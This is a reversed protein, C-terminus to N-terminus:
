RLIEEFLVDYQNKVVDIAYDRIAIERSNKQCKMLYDEDNVFKLVATKLMDINNTLVNEGLSEKQVLQAVDNNGGSICIIASGSSMADYVKSPLFLGDTKEKITILSVDAAGLSFPLMEIPQYPLVLCNSLNNKAVYEQIEKFAEGHGIFVFSIQSFVQLEKAVALIENFGHGFGMKGSYMIVTKNELGYAKVFKNEEKPIPKIIESNAHYPIVHIKLNPNHQLIKAKMVEGITIVADCQKYLNRNQKRWFFTIPKVVTGFSKEICDPYIDWILYLVKKKKKLAFRLLGQNIPPNSTFLVGEYEDIHKKLFRKVAKVYARWTKFRSFFSTSNYQPAPIVTVSEKVEIKKGTIVSLLYGREELVSALLEVYTADQSQSILLIKKM